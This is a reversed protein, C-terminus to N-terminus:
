WRRECHCTTCVYTRPADAMPEEVHITPVDCDRCVLVPARNIEGGALQRLTVGAPSSYHPPSELRGPAWRRRSQPGRGLVEAVAAAASADISDRIQDAIRM